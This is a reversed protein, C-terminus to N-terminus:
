GKEEPEDSDASPSPKLSLGTSYGMKAIAEDMSQGPSEGPQRPPIFEERDPNAQHEEFGPPMMTNVGCAEAIQRAYHANKSDFRSICTLWRGSQKIEVSRMVRADGERENADLAGAYGYMLQRQHKAEKTDECELQIPKSIKRFAELLYEFDHPYAELKKSLPM